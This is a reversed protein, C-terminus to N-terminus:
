MNKLDKVLVKLFDYFKAMHLINIREKPTHELEVTTGISVMQIGPIKQGIYATELGGHISALTPDRNILGKYHDKVFQLLPAAPEPEWAPDPETQTIEWGGMEAIQVLKRNITNLDAIVSSRTSVEITLNEGKSEIIALNNSSQTLEFIEFPNGAMVFENLSIMADPSFALMGHPILNITSIIRKSDQISCVDVPGCSEWGIHLDPEYMTSPNKYYAYLDAREAELLAKLRDVDEKRIAFKATASPTIVNLKCVGNWSSFHIDIEQYLVTLCRAMLKNASAHPLHIDVGSHGSRLGEIILTFYQYDETPVLKSQTFKQSLSTISMGASGFAILGLFSCDLNLLLRSQIGLGKVDLDRAGFCGIEEEVTLLVELPGHELKPDPDVLLAMAMAVGTGNDGGITTGNADIWEGNEQIRLSLPTHAFDFGDPHSTECVMDVPGQLLVPPTSEMGPTAAKKILLNGKADEQM